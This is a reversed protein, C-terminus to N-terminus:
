IFEAVWNELHRSIYERPRQFHQGSSVMVVAVFFDTKGVPPQLDMNLDATHGSFALM